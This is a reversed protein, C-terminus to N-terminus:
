YRLWSEAVTVLVKAQEDSIRETRLMEISDEVPVDRYRARYRVVHLVLVRAVEAFEETTAQEILAGSAPLSTALKQFDGTMPRDPPLSLLKRKLENGLLPSKM